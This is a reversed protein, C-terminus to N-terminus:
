CEHSETNSAQKQKKRTLLDRFSQKTQYALAPLTLRPVELM